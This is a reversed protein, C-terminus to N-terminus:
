YGGIPKFGGFFMRKGDFPAKKMDFNVMFPHKMIKKWVAARHAKSKFEVIATGVVEGKKLKVSQPFSTIKGPKVDDAICEVYSVAGCEKWAKASEKVLAKYARLKSRSLPVVMFDYYAMDVEQSPLALM